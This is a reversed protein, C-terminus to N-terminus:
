PRTITLSQRHALVGGSIPLTVTRASSSSALLVGGRAPDAAPAAAPAIAAPVAVTPAVAAPVARERPWFALLL